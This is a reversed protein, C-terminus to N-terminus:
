DLPSATGSVYDCSAWIGFDTTLTLKGGNPQGLGLETIFPLSDFAGLELTWRGSLTRVDRLTTLTLPGELIQQYVASDSGDASRSQKLYWVPVPVNLGFLFGSGLRGSEIPKLLDPRSRASLRTFVELPSRVQGTPGDLPAAVVNTGHLSLFQQPSAIASPAYTKILLASAVFPGHSPSGVPMTINSMYKPYGMIERGVSVALGNDVFLYAPIWAIETPWALPWSEGDKFSGALVWFGLDIEPTGGQDSFPPTTAVIATNKVCAFFVMDVLVQFKQRGAIANYTRDLYSQLTKADASFGFGYFDAGLCDFPPRPLTVWGGFNIYKSTM